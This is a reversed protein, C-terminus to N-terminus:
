EAKERSEREYSANKRTAIITANIKMLINWTDFTTSIREM